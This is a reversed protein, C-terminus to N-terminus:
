KKNKVSNQSIYVNDFLDDRWQQKALYSCWGDLYFIPKLEYSARPFTHKIAKEICSKFSIDTNDPIRLVLHMHYSDIYSYEFMAIFFFEARHASNKYCQSKIRKEIKELGIKIASLSLNENNPNITLAYNCNNSISLSHLWEIGAVKVRYETNMVVENLVINIIM